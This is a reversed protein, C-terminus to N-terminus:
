SVSSKYSNHVADNRSIRIDYLIDAIDKPVLGERILVKIRNAHTNGELPEVIKDLTFMLQVISEAFLGLKILCANSDTYLYREAMSGLSVMIPWKEEFFSFNSKM